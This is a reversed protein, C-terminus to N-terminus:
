VAPFISMQTAENEWRPPDAQLMEEFLARTLNSRDLLQRLLRFKLFRWGQELAEALRPDHHIKYAVLNARSGPLVLICRAPSIPTPELLYRGIIGSALLFFCFEVKGGADQWVVPNEGQQHFGLENALIELGSRAASLDSRRATPLEQPRLQWHEPLSSSADGYSQLCTHIFERTPTFLGPFASYLASELDSQTRGPSKQLFRVIEMEVRDSIPEELKLAPRALWWLGSEPNQPRSDYRVFTSSNYFAKQVGAQLRVLTDPNYQAQNLPLVGSYALNALAAAYLPEYPAPENRAKLFDIAGSEVQKEWADASDPALPKGVVNWYVQAIEDDVQITCRSLHLGASEAAVIAASFFGPGVEPILGWMPTAPPLNKSLPALAQHLAAAHWHWDYRRRELASHLPQVAEQGWLWGAWMASLTWYAQNPRPLVTVVAAPKIEPPLPVISKLRGHFLGVVGPPIESQPWAMIPVVGEQSSWATLANELALWLNKEHFQTPSTLQRPRLRGSPHPWLITAEDCITLALAMLLRKKDPPLGLGEMRNILTFVFYLPRSLYIQLAEEAGERLTDGPQSVRALAWARHLSTNGQIALKEVDLNALPHEGEDGCFPCHYIRAYPQTEGKRWLYSQAQIRRGCSACETVYLSQLHVELREEGRRTHGLESLVAQFDAKVPATALTELIFSLIPNSCAALVRYGARAAELVLAPSSCLPDLIYAGPPVNEQLWARTMGAPLPPLFRSLPLQPVGSDGPIFPMAYENM